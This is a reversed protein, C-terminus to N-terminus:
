GRQGHFPGSRRWFPLVPNIEGRAIAGLLRRVHGLGTEPLDVMLEVTGQESHVVRVRGLDRLLKLMLENDAFMLATFSTIGAARARDALAAALRGGVGQGQREDVVAVALEAVTPDTKARVYRAVGVGQGTGRDIAVLAEHDHHDVETLYRLDRESLREHPSLFRQYRSRQSLREFGERLLQKDETSIPRILLTKGPTVHGDRVWGVRLRCLGIV